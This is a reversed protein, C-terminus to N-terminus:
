STLTSSPSEGFLKRYDAAFRGLHLFGFHMAVETVTTESPLAQRLLARARNLRCIRIYALPSVGVYEHFAYQLGRESVGLEECLRSISPLEDKQLEEEIRARARRGIHFGRAREGASVDSFGQQESATLIQLVADRITGSLRELDVADGRAVAAGVAEFWIAAATEFMAKDAMDIARMGEARDNWNAPRLAEIARLLDDEPFSVYTTQSGGAILLDFETQGPLFFVCGIGDEGHVSIRNKGPTCISLTCFNRPTTGVKHVSVTQTERVIQQTGLDIVDMTGVSRGPTLQNCEMAVWPQRRAQQAADEVVSSSLM